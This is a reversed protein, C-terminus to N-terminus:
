FAKTCPEDYASTLRIEAVPTLKPLTVYIVPMVYPISNFCNGEALLGDNLTGPFFVTSRSYCVHIM